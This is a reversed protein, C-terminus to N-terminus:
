YAAAHFADVGGGAGKCRVATDCCCVYGDLKNNHEGQTESERLSSCWAACKSPKRSSSETRLLMSPMFPAAPVKASCLLLRLGGAEGRLANAPVDAPQVVPVPKNLPTSATAALLAALPTFLTCPHATFAAAVAGPPRRALPVPPLPLLRLSSHPPARLRLLKDYPTITISM